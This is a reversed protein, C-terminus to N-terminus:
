DGLLEEPTKTPHDIIQVLETAVMDGIPKGSQKEADDVVTQVRRRILAATEGAVGALMLARNIIALVAALSM